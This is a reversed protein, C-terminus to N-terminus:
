GQNQLKNYFHFVKQSGNFYLAFILIFLIFQLNAPISFYYLVIGVLNLLGSICLLVVLAERASMGAQMLIHHIHTRDPHFPNEGNKLRRLVTTVMDLLPLGVFYLGTAPEFSLEMGATPQSYYCIMSILTFGLLMSGSDGMFIKQEQRNLQLNFVIFGIIAGILSVMLTNLESNIDPVAWISCLALITIGPMLYDIGDIMNFANVIGFFAIMTFPIAMMLPLEIDDGGLLNGLNIFYLEGFFMIIATSLFTLIVRATITLNFRDDLMGVVTILGASALYSRSLVSNDQFLFAALVMTFYVVVGGTLPTTGVHQKRQSPKDVFGAKIFAPNLITIMVLSLAFAFLLKYLLHNM